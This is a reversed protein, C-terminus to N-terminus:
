SPMLEQHLLLSLLMMTCEICKPMCVVFIFYNKNTCGAFWQWKTQMFYYIFCFLVLLSFFFFRRSLKCSNTTTQRQVIVSLWKILYLQRGDTINWLYFTKATALERKSSVLVWFLCHAASNFIEKLLIDCSLCRYHWFYQILKVLDVPKLM